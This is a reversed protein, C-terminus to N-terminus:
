LVACMLRALIYEENPPQIIHTHVTACLPELEHLSAAPPTSVIEVPLPSRLAGIAERASRLSTCSAIIGLNGVVKEIVGHEGHMQVHRAPALQMHQFILGFM